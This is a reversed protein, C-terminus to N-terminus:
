VNEKNESSTSDDVSVFDIFEIEEGILVPIPHKNQAPKKYSTKNKKRRQIRNKRSKGFWESKSFATNDSYEPVFKQKKNKKAM